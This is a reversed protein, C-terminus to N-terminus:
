KAVLYSQLGDLNATFTAHNEWWEISSEFNMKTLKNGRHGNLQEANMM